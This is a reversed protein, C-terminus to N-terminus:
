NLFRLAIMIKSVRSFGLSGVIIASLRCTTVTRAKVVKYVIVPTVYM